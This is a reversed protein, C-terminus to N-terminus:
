LLSRKSLAPYSLSRPFLIQRAGGCHPEQYCRILELLKNNMAVCVYVFSTRVCVCVCWVAIRQQQKEGEPLLPAM